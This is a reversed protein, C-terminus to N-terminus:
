DGGKLRSPPTFEVRARPDGYLCYALWSPDGKRAKKVARRAHLFADGLAMGERLGEYFKEAFMGASEDSVEWMTGVFGSCGGDILTRAWGEIETLAYDMRGSHCANIFIFPRDKLLSGAADRCDDPLLPGDTMRLASFHPNTDDFSGHCAIHLLDYGGEELIRRVEQCLPTIEAVVIGMEHALSFVADIEQRIYQLARNPTSSDRFVPVLRAERWALKQRTNRGSLWRAMRFRECLYQRGDPRVLEWPIWPEETILQLSGPGCRTLIERLAAPVIERFLSDGMKEVISERIKAAAATSAPKRVQGVLEEYLREVFQRPDRKLHVTGAPFNFKDLKDTPSYLRYDLVVGGDSAARELVIITLDPPLASADISAESRVALGDSEDDVKSDIVRVALRVDGVYRRNQLFTVIIRKEGARLPRLSFILPKSSESLPVMILGESDPEIEFDPADVVVDVPIERVADLPAELAIEADHPHPKDLIRVTGDEEMIERMVIAVRLVSTEGLLPRSPFSVDTYRNITFSPGPIEKRIGSTQIRGRTRIARRFIPAESDGSTPALSVDAGYDLFPGPGRMAREHEREHMGAGIYRPAIYDRPYAGRGLDELPLEAYPVYRRYIEFLASVRSTDDKCRRSVLRKRPTLGASPYLGQLAEARLEVSCAPMETPLVRGRVLVIHDSLALFGAHDDIGSKALDVAVYPPFHMFEWPLEYLRPEQIDLIIWLQRGSPQLRKLINPIYSLNDRLPVFAIEFLAVGLDIVRLITEEVREERRLSELSAFASELLYRDLENVFVSDERVQFGPRDPCRSTDDLLAWSDVEVIRSVVTKGISVVLAEIRDVGPGGGSAECNAKM